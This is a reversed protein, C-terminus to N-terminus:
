YRSPSEGKTVCDRRWEVDRVLLSGLSGASSDDRVGLLDMITTGQGRQRKSKTLTEVDDEEQIFSHIMPHSDEFIQPDKYAM